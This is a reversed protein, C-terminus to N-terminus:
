ATPVGYCATHNTQIRRQTNERNPEIVLRLRPNNPKHSITSYLLYKYSSLKEQIITQVEQSTLGTNEIDVIILDRSKLDNDNRTYSGDGNPTIDGSIFYPMNNAKYGRIDEDSNITQVFTNAITELATENTDIPKLVNTKYGIQRYIM